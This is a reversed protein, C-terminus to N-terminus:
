SVFNLPDLKDSGYRVEFHLHPGTSNGTSGVYGITQGKSVYQGASVAISSCHAYCTSYGNGHDVIIYNGYGGGDNGAFTVTGGDSAVIDQGNVGSAAIDIGWHMRGWRWAYYSTINHTYPVPWMFSGTSTGSSSSSSSSFTTSGSSSSSKKSGKVVVEDVAEKTVQSDIQVADTQVGDTYTTRVTVIQEGNKGETKVKEYSSDKSDDYETETEYPLEKTYTIDTSLAISFKGEAASMIESVSMLPEETFSGSKVVVDNAFETTTEEDYDARYDILVKELAENLANADTTVGILEGDIYLGTTCSNQIGDVASISDIPNSAEDATSVSLISNASEYYNNNSNQTPETTYVEKASTIVKASKVPADLASAVTACSLLVITMSAVVALIAKKRLLTHARNGTNSASHAYKKNSAFSIGTIAERASSSFEDSIGTRNELYCKDIISPAKKVKATKEAPKKTNAKSNSKATKEGILSVFKSVNTSIEKAFYSGARKAFRVTKQSATLQTTKRVVRKKETSLSEIENFGELGIFKTKM